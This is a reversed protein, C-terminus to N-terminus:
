LLLLLVVHQPNWLGFHWTCIVSLWGDLYYGAGAYLLWTSPCHLQWSIRCYVTFRIIKQNNKWEIRYFVFHVDAFIALQFTTLRPGNFRRFSAYTPCLTVGNLPGYVSYYTYWFKHFRVIRTWTIMLTTFHKQFVAYISSLGWGPFHQIAIDGDRNMRDVEHKTRPLYM